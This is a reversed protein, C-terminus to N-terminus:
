KQKIQLSNTPNPRVRNAKSNERKEENKPPPPPPPPTRERRTVENPLPPLFPLSPSTQRLCSCLISPRFNRPPPFNQKRHHIHHHVKNVTRKTGSCQSTRQGPPTIGRKSSSALHTQHLRHILASNVKRQWFCNPFGPSPLPMPLNSILSSPESTRIPLCPPSTSTNLATCDIGKGGNIRTTNGKIQPPSSLPQTKPTHPANFICTSDSHVFAQERKCGEEGRFM